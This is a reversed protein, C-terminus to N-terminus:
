SSPNAAAQRWQARALLAFVITATALAVVIVWELAGSGHDPDWGTLLEIWERSILTVITLVATIAALITDIWFRTALHPPRPM